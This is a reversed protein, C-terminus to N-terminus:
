LPTPGPEQAIRQALLTPLHRTHARYGILRGGDFASVGMNNDAFGSLVPAEELPTLAPVCVREEEINLKSLMAAEEIHNNFFDMLIM